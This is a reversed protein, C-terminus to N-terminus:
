GLFSHFPTLIAWVEYCIQDVIEKVEGFHFLEAEGNDFLPKIKSIGDFVGEINQPELCLSFPDYKFQVGPIIIQTHKVLYETILTSVELDQEVKERVSKFERWTAAM